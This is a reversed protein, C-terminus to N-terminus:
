PRRAGQPANHARLREMLSPLSSGPNDLYADQFSAVRGRGDFYVARVRASAKDEYRWVTLPEKVGRELFPEVTNPTGSARSVDAMSAGVAPTVFAWAPYTRLWTTQVRGGVLLIEAVERGRTPEAYVLFADGPRAAAADPGGPQLAASPEGALTRVDSASMGPRVSQMVAKMDLPRTLPTVRRGCGPSAALMVAAVLIGARPGSV